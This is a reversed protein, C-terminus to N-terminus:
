IIDLIQSGSIKEEELFLQKIKSFTQILRLICFNLAANTNTSLSVWCQMTGLNGARHLRTTHTYQVFLTSVGRIAIKHARIIQFLTRFYIGTNM